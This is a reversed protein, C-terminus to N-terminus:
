LEYHLIKDFCVGVVLPGVLDGAACGIWQGISPHILTAGIGAGISAFVLSSSCKVTAVFVKKGLLQFEEKKDEDEVDEKSGFLRSLCRYIDIGVQVFWLAAVGLCHARFTTKTVSCFYVFTPMGRHSKRLASKRADKLLKWAMRQSIHAVALRELVRRTTVVTSERIIQKVSKKFPIVLDVNRHESGDQLFDEDDDDHQTRPELLPLYCMLFSRLTTMALTKWQFASLLPKLEISYVKTPYRLSDPQVIYGPMNHIGSIHDASWAPGADSHAVSIGDNGFFARFGFPYIAAASAASASVAVKASFSGFSHLTKTSQFNPNKRLLDLLIAVGAM